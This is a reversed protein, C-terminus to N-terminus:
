FSRNIGNADSFILSARYSVTIAIVFWDDLTARKKVFAKLSCLSVKEGGDFKGVEDVAQEIAEVTCPIDSLGKVPYLLVFRYLGGRVCISSDNGDERCGEM